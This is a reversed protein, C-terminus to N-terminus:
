CVECDTQAGVTLYHITCATAWECEMRTVSYLNDM